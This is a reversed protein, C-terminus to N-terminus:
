EMEGNINYHRYKIDERPLGVTSKRWEELRSLSVSEISAVSEGVDSKSVTKYEGDMFIECYGDFESTILTNQGTPLYIAKKM